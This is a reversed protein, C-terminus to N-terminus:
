KHRAAISVTDKAGNSWASGLLPTIIVSQYEDGFAGPSRTLSVTAMRSASKRASASRTEAKRWTLVLPAQTSAGTVAAVVCFSSSM